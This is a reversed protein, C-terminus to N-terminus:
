PQLMCQDSTNRGVADEQRCRDLPCCNLIGLGIAVGSPKWGVDRAKGEPAGLSSRRHRTTLHLAMQRKQIEDKSSSELESGIADRNIVQCCTRSRQM